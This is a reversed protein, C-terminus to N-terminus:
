LLWKDASSNEKWEVWAFCFSSCLWILKFFFPNSFAFFFSFLNVDVSIRRTKYLYDFQIGNGVIIIITNSQANWKNCCCCICENKAKWTAQKLKYTWENLVCRFIRHLWCCLKLLFICIFALDLRLVITFLRLPRFLIRNRM